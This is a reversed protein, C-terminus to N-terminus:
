VVTVTELWDDTHQMGTSDYERSMNVSSLISTPTILGYYAFTEENWLNNRVLDTRGFYDINASKCAADVM